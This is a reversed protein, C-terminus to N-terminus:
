KIHATRQMFLTVQLLDPTLDAPIPITPIADDKCSFGMELVKDAETSVNDQVQLIDIEMEQNTEPAQGSSAELLKCVLMPDCMTKLKKTVNKLIRCYIWPYEFSRIKQKIDFSVRYIVWEELHQLSYHM